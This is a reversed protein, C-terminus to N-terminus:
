GRRALRWQVYGDADNGSKGVLSGGDLWAVGVDPTVRQEQGTELLTQTKWIGRFVLRGNQIQGSARQKVRLTVTGYGSPLTAQAVANIVYGGNRARQIELAVPFSVTRGGPPVQRVSGTWTGTFPSRRVQQKQEPPTEQQPKQQDQAPRGKAQIQPGDVSLGWRTLIDAPLEPLEPNSVGRTWLDRLNVFVIQGTALNSRLTKMGAEHIDKFSYSGFRRGGAVGTAELAVIGGKLHFVPFCHGPILALRADIGVANALAAYCIALDICTGSRDRIV